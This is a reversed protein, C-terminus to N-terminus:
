SEDIEGHFTFFAWSHERVTHKWASDRMEESSLERRRPLVVDPTGFWNQRRLGDAFERSVGSFILPYMGVRDPRGRVNGGHASGEGSRIMHDTGRRRAHPLSIPSASFGIFHIDAEWTATPHRNIISLRITSGGSGEESLVAVADIYSPKLACQQIWVPYTPGLYVDPFTPLQLLHGSHMYRSFTRLSGPETDTYTYPIVFFTHLPRV